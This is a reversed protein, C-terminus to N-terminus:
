KNLDKKLIKRQKVWHEKITQRARAICLADEPVDDTVTAGAAIYAGEGVLVPAVINTNCGIFADDNIVSRQKIHGDYNVFVVGCGLNVREGIDADGIYTLHSAKTGDGINSNKVEVFDGVKCDNGIVTGPRIYAFPGVSTNEGIKSEYIYASKIVSNSGIISGEIYSSQYIHAGSKIVTSGKLTVNNDITAGPEIIVSEDIYVSYIDLMNVGSELIEKNRKLRFKDMERYEEIRMNRREEFINTQSSHRLFKIYM